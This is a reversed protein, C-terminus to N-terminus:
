VEDLTELDFTRLLQLYDALHAESVAGPGQPQQQQPQSGPEPVAYLMHVPDPAQTPTSLVQPPYQYGGSFDQSGSHISNLMQVGMYVPATATTAHHHHHGFSGLEQMSASRLPGVGGHSSPSLAASGTNNTTTTDMYQVSQLSQVSCRRQMETAAQGLLSASGQAEGPYGTISNIAAARAVPDSFALEPSTQSLQLASMSMPMPVNAARVTPTTHPSMDSPPSWM